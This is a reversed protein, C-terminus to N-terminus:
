CFFRLKIPLENIALYVPWLTGKKSSQFLSVGDTNMIFTLNIDAKMASSAEIEGRFTQYIKGDYIDNIYESETHRQNEEVLKVFNEDRFLSKLQDVIRLDHYEKVKSNHRRCSVKGCPENEHLIEQCGECYFHICPEQFGTSQKLTEKVRYVSTSFSSPVPLHSEILELLDSFADNSLSYQKM